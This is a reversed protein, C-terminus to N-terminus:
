IFLGVFLASLLSVLAGGIMAKPALKSLAPRKEPALVSIGVVSIGISSLNAFGTLAIAVMQSARPSMHSMVKVYDSFAVFENLTLKQGLLSAVQKTDDFSIGFMMGFPLFVYSLISQLSTGLMGLFGNIMAVLSIIAILSGAVGIAMGVGDSTGKSLAEVLSSNDGKRDMKVNNLESEETEPVLIKAVLLSSIPVLACALLLSKMPVGLLSYGVLISGAVSGMGSVLVTFLESRTMKPIYQKVLIPAETQGLLMNATAVFSEAKSTGMLKQIAGGIVKVFLGIVGLYNLVSMLASFVIIICLVQIVFIAGTPAHSDALSGFVFSLGDNAYSMVKQFGNSFALLAKQGIPVKVFFFTLLLQAAVGYAIPKFKVFKKNESILYLLGFLLAISIINILLSM